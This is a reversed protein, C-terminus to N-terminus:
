RKQAQAIVWANYRKLGLRAVFFAAFIGPLLLVLHWPLIFFSYDTDVTKGQEGYALHMTATYYGLHFNKFEWMFNEYTDHLLSGNLDTRDNGWQVIFKRMSKPLVNGTKPNAVLSAVEFGFMNKVTITGVPKIRNGGMNNFWYEFNIPISAFWSGGQTMFGNVGASEKVDGEVTLLLLAGVKGGILMQGSKDAPSSSFFIAGFHGGPVADQPIAISYGVLKREQPQVTVVDNTKIWSAIDDSNGTFNPAGTEGDAIFNQSSIYYTKATAEDNFLEITDTVSEGPKGSIEARAPSITLADVHQASFLTFGFVAVVIFGRKINM